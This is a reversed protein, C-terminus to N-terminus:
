IWRGNTYLLELVIIAVFHFTVKNGGIKWYTQGLLSWFFRKRRVLAIGASKTDENPVINRSNREDDM